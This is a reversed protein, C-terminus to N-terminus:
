CDSIRLSFVDDEHEHLAFQRPSKSGEHIDEEPHRADRQVGSFPMKVTRITHCQRGLRLARGPLCNVSSGMIPWTKGRYHQWNGWGSSIAERKARALWNNM